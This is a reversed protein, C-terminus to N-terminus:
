NDLVNEWSMRQCITTYEDVLDNSFRISGFHDRYAEVGERDSYELRHELIWQARDSMESRYVEEALKAARQAKTPKTM